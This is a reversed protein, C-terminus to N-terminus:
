KVKQAKKKEPILTFLENPECEFYLLLKEINGRSINYNPNTGIRSLTLAKIGIEQEMIKYTIRKGGIASKKEMLAKLNILLM